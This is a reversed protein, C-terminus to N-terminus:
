LSSEQHTLQKGKDSYRYQTATFVPTAAVKCNDAPILQTYMFTCVYLGQKKLLQIQYAQYSHINSFIQLPHPCYKKSSHRPPISQSIYKVVGLTLMCKVLINSMRLYWFVDSPISQNTYKESICRLPIIQSLLIVSICRLTKAGWGGTWLFVKQLEM